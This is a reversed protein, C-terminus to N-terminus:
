LKIEIPAHEHYFDDLVVSAKGMPIKDLNAIIIDAWLRYRRDERIFLLRERNTQLWAALRAHQQQMGSLLKSRETVLAHQQVFSRYFSNLAEIPDHFTALINGFPILSLYPSEDIFTIHYIGSELHSRAANLQEWQDAPPLSSFG